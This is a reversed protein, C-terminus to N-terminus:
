PRGRDRRCLIGGYWRGCRRRDREDWRESPALGMPGARNRPLSKEVRGRQWEERQGWQGAWGGFRRRRRSGSGEGGKESHRTLPLYSSYSRLIITRHTYNRGSLLTGSRNGRSANRAICVSTLHLSRPIPLLHPLTRYCGWSLILPWPLSEYQHIEWFCHFCDLHNHLDGSPRLM